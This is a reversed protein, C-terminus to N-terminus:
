MEGLADRVDEAFALALDLAAEADAESLTGTALRNDIKAIALEMEADIVGTLMRTNRDSQAGAAAAEATLKRYAEASADLAGKHAPKM